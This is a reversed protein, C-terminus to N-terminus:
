NSSAFIRLNVYCCFHKENAKTKTIGSFCGGRTRKEAALYDGKEEVGPSCNQSQGRMERGGGGGIPDDRDQSSCTKSALVFERKGEKGHLGRLKAEQKISETGCVKIGGKGTMLLLIAPRKGKLELYGAKLDSKQFM